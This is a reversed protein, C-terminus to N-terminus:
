ANPYHVALWITEEEPTTWGVKHKKHAPIDICDGMQLHVSTGDAFSLVAEGRLVMVWENQEQDYWGIEPSRHGKSVIREIRVHRNDILTEFIEKEPDDPIAEFFNKKM